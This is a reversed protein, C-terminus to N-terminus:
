NSARVLLELLTIGLVLAGYMWLVPERLLCIQSPPQHTEAQVRDLARTAQLVFFIGFGSLLAAGIWNASLANAGLLELLYPRLLRSALGHSIVAILGVWANNQWRVIFATGLALPIFGIVASIGLSDTFLVSGAFVAALTLAAQPQKQGGTSSALYIWFLAGQGTPVLVGLVGLLVTNNATTTATASLSGVWLALLNGCITTLWGGVIFALLGIAAAAGISKGTPRNLGPQAATLSTAVLGALLLIGGGGAQILAPDVAGILMLRLGLIILLTVLTVTLGTRWPRSSALASSIKETDM